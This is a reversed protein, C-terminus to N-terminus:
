PGRVPRARRRTEPRAYWCMFDVSGDMGVLACTRMNGIIGYNEIPLYGGYHQRMASAANGASCQAKTAMSGNGVVFGQKTRFISVSAM